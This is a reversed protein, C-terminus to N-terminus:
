SRLASVFPNSRTTILKKAIPMKVSVHTRANKRSQYLWQFAPASRHTLSEVSVTPERNAPMSCSLIEKNAMFCTCHRNYNYAYNTTSYGMYGERIRVEERITQKRLTPYIPTKQPGATVLGEVQLQWQYFHSALWRLWWYDCKWHDLCTPLPFCRPSSKFRESKDNRKTPWTKSDREQKVRGKWVHRPDLSLPHLNRLKQFYPHNDRTLTPRNM